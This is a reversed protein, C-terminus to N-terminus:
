RRSGDYGRVGDFDLGNTGRECHPYVWYHANPKLHFSPFYFGNDIWFKENENPSIPVIKRGRKLLPFKAMVLEITNNNKTIVIDYDGVTNNCPDPYVVGRNTYYGWDVVYLEEHPTWHEKKVHIQCTTTDFICAIKNSYAYRGDANRIFCYVTVSDGCVVHNGSRKEYSLELPVSNYTSVYLTDHCVTYPCLQIDPVIYGFSPWGYFSLGLVSDNLIELQGLGGNGVYIQSKANGCLLGLIVISM